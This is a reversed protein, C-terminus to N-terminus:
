RSSVAAATAQALPAAHLLRHRADGPTGEEPVGHEERTGQPRDAQAGVQARGDVVRAGQGEDVDALALLDM